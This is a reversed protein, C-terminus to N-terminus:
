PASYAHQSVRAAWHQGPKLESRKGVLGLREYTASSLTLHLRGAAIGVAESQAPGATRHALAIFQM